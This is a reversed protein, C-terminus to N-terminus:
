CERLSLLTANGGAATTDTSRTRETAFRHLYRPGGAKPGTGSLGEGGFPQSGVVAGVMNRNVYINGVRMRACIEEVRGEIRSHIGLTLGYGMANIAACVRDLQDARYRIVHLIPGFVEGTLHAPSDIEFARPAFYYGQALGPPLPTESLLKGATSMRAAHANLADLAQADILPGIDTDLRMPDGIRLEQMAGALMELVRPAAEHQIFLIRLASCRQGASNFASRVVDDILQEPLASSDAIMVNQGGTEAIFPIIPGARQALRRNIARAVDMSGTFAVGAIRADSVLAAGVLEGAGPLLHLAEVPVGAQHLLQVARFAILGTQEAPKAVVANGAALAAAVQGTFIALPFNWPSICCFVGRGHLSIQNNEGVPGPLAQPADFEARARAAYYRLFDEAERVESLADPLTKGGERVCLGMLEARNAEFLDAARDLYQARARGGLGDWGAAAVSASALAREIAAGDSMALHGVIRSLDAPDFATERPGKFSEGDVLPGATRPTQMSVEIQQLLPTLVAPDSLLIGLSNRREDGYLHEPMLIQPNPIDRIEATVTVPDRVIECVPAADDSLRNVFSSNAGNELLRRVLYALLDEHSGVPAYIRCAVGHAQMVLDHLPAGMGHLRQFEFPVSPAGTDAGTMVLIAAVTHANHTAFQPKLWGGAAIMRAACALYSVDTSAKRTFVPYGVLGREQARKIESDWYAGKVLRVPIRRTCKKAQERLWDLVHPARKQYAQVALGFGEWGNLGAYAASFVDLTLDLRDSEEADVTLDINNACALAALETLRLTLEAMVRTAQAQEFRPHLASLKVSIGPERLTNGTSLTRIAHMYAQFHHEAQNKTRAGEGLMDFSHRYGAGADTKAHIIAEDITRGLVFQRGMIRMAHLLAQRIVPEGSRAIMRGLFSGADAIDTHEMRVIRGTLMLGLTSANVFWSDSHGIHREWNAPAIKDRILADVTASDPIRLLAEALCMLAVGEESSLAYERLFVDLGGAPHRHARIHEVFGTALATVRASEGVDLRAAPLLATVCEAEDALYNESIAQRSM